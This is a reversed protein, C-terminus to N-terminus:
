IVKLGREKAKALKIKLEEDIEEATRSSRDTKINELIKKDEWGYNAKLNFEAGRPNKLTYLAQEIEAEVKAKIKACVKKYEEKKTYDSWTMKTINLFNYFDILSPMRVRVNEAVPLGEGDLIAAGNKDKVIQYQYLSKFYEESAIELELPSYSPDAGPKGDRKLGKLKRNEAEAKKLAELLEKKNM